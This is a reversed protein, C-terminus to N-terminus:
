GHCDKAQLPADLLQGLAQATVVVRHLAAVPPNAFGHLLECLRQPLLLVILRCYRLVIRALSTYLRYPMRSSRDEASRGQRLATKLAQEAKRLATLLEQVRDHLASLEVEHTAMQAISEHLERTKEDLSPRTLYWGLGIGAVVPLAFVGSLLAVGAAMGGGGAAM